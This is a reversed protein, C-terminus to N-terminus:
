TENMSPHILHKLSHTHMRVFLVYCLFSDCSLFYRQVQVAVCKAAITALKPVRSREEMLQEEGNMATSNSKQKKMWADQTTHPALFVLFSQLQKKKCILELHFNLKFTVARAFSYLLYVLQKSKCFYLHM